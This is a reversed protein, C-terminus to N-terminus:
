QQLYQFWVVAKIARQIPNGQGFRSLLTVEKTEPPHPGPDLILYDDGKKAYALVWHVQMGPDPSYDVQVIVPQGAEILSNIQFIPADSDTYRIYGDSHIKPYIGSISDWVIASSDFDGREKLRHNLTSPTETYGWGSLYMALVTLESGVYGITDSQKGFGM